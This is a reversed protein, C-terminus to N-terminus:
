SLSNIISGIYNEIAKLLSECYSVVPREYNGITPQLDDPNKCLYRDVITPQSGGSYYGPTGTIRTTTTRTEVYVPRRHMSCHRYAELAKFKNSNICKKVAQDLSSNQETNDLKRSVIKIDLQREDIGLSRIQNILQGLIDLTSRLFDWFCDCFLIVQETTSQLLPATQGTTSGQLRPNDEIHELKKLQELSFYVQRIKTKVGEGYLTIAPTILGRDNLRTVLREIRKETDL